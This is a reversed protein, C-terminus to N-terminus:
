PIIGLERAEDYSLPGRERRTENAIEALKDPDFLDDALAEDLGQLSQNDFLSLDFDADAIPELQVLQPEPEPQPEPEASSTWEEAREILPEVVEPQEVPAAEKPKARFRRTKEEEPISPKVAFASTGVLAILDEAARRGFRNVAGFQRSGVAGDFVLCMFHHFGVSLVFVDYREGDYFHLATPQAGGVLQGMEITTKVTPLLANTLQERDLYGVAGREMLVDAGRSALVIAMAGVDVLLSDVVREAIKMDLSPIPGMDASTAVLRVPPASAAFIDGGDLAATLVRMFQAGDLPRHLYVFPATARYEEDLEKPDDVDGLVILAADPYAQKVQLVLDIGSMEDTLQLAAVVLQCGRHRIEDLADAGDPVDIQIVAHDTLDLAGRVMRAVTGTADVTVIHPLVSM